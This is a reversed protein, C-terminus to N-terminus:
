HVVETVCSVHGSVLFYIIACVTSNVIVCQMTLEVSVPKTIMIMQVVIHESPIPIFIAVCEYDLSIDVSSANSQCATKGSYLFYSYKTFQFSEIYRYIIRNLQLM